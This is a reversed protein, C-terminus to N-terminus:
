KVAVACSRFGGYIDNREPTFYNRYRPHVMCPLTARSAGRLVYRNEAFWPVSYDRYPHAVFGPYPAFRSATWEWVQGWHFTPHRLAACAWEAETPLRRGAWRCWADAEFWTLHCAHQDLALAQWAGFRQTEWVGSERRLYRPLPANTAEIYPLYRRWSVVESDIAFGALEVSHALLENDFAFGGEAYGLQWSQAPIQCVINQPLAEALPLLGASLPIGLAQAMYIGAECHMAEHFLALRFFYLAEDTEPTTALLVLSDSLVAALYNRTEALDPLPLQWRREHAVLSSNYWADAEALHGNPRVIDPDALVGLARQPNRALWFEQFWAVHGAEWRPPNFQSSYPITTAEGLHSAYAELLSLTCQRTTQLMEAIDDRGATRATMALKTNM